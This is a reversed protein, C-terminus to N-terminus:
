CFITSLHSDEPKSTRTTQYYYIVESLDKNSGDDIVM